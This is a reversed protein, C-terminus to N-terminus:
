GARSDGGNLSARHGTRAEVSLRLRHWVAMRLNGEFAAVLREIYGFGAGYRYGVRANNTEIYALYKQVEPNHWTRIVAYGLTTPASDNISLVGRCWNQGIVNLFDLWHILHIERVSGVTTDDLSLRDNDIDMFLATLDADGYFDTTYGRVLQARLGRRDKARSVLYLAVSVVVTLAAIAVGLIEIM